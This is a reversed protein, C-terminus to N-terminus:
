PKAGWDCVWVWPNAEWKAAGHIHTWIGAFGCYFTGLPSPYFGGDEDLGLREAGEAEADRESIDQLREVRVDALTLKLRAAKQPLHIAPRLKGWEGLARPTEPTDDAEYFIRAPMSIERPKVSDCPWPLRFNERVYLVDGPVGHPCRFRNIKNTGHWGGDWWPGGGPGGMNANHISDFTEVGPVNVIRRTQTKRGGIIARVMPASFIIPREVVASRGASTNKSPM